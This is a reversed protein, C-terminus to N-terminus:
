NLGVGYDSTNVIGEKLMNDMETNELDRGGPGARYLLPTTLRTDGDIRDIRHKGGTIQGTHGNGVSEYKELINM